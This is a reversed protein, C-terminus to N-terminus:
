CGAAPGWGSGSPDRRWLPGLGQRHVQHRQRGPQDLIQRLKKEDALLVAPGDPAVTVAFDLGKSEARMRFMSTLDTIMGRLNFSAPALPTRGAEIKSMELIDDIM